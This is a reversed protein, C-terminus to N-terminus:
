TTTPLIILLQAAVSLVLTRNAPLLLLLLLMHLSSVAFCLRTALLNAIAFCSPVNPTNSATCETVIATSFYNQLNRPLTGHANDSYLVARFLM